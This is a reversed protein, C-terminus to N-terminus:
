NCTGKQAPELTALPNKLKMEIRCLSIQLEDTTSISKSLALAKKVYIHALSLLDLTEYSAAMERFHLLQIQTCPIQLLDLSNCSARFVRVLAQRDELVDLVQNWLQVCAYLTLHPYFNDESDMLSSCISEISAVTTHVKKVQQKVLRLLTSAYRADSQLALKSISRVLQAAIEVKGSSLAVKSLEIKLLNLPINIAKPENHTNLLVDAYKQLTTSDIVKSTSKELAIFVALQPNSPTPELAELFASSQRCFCSLFKMYIHRSNVSKEAIESAVALHNKALELDPSAQRSVIKIVLLHHFMTVTPDCDTERIVACSNLLIPLLVGQQKISSSNIINSIAVSINIIEQSSKATIAFALAATLSIGASIVQPTHADNQHSQQDHFNFTFPCARDAIFHTKARTYAQLILAKHRLEPTTKSEFIKAILLESLSWNSDTIAAEVDKM